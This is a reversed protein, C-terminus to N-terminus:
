CPKTEASQRAARFALILTAAASFWLLIGTGLASIGQLQAIPVLVASVAAWAVLAAGAWYHPAYRFLRALPFMHLGVIATIANMVYADLHLRNLTFAVIGVAIWQIANIWGFARGMAPDDPVRPWRKAARLLSLAALVLGAVGLLLGAVTGVSLWELAYLSLGIWIAGFGAFFLAGIARGGLQNATQIKM